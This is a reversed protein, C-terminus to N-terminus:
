VPSRTRCNNLAGFILLAVVYCCVTSLSKHCAEFVTQKLLLTKPKLVIILPLTVTSLQKAMLRNCVTAVTTMHASNQSYGLRVYNGTSCCVWYAVFRVIKYAVFTLLLKSSFGSCTKFNTSNHCISCKPDEGLKQSCKPDEGLKQSCKPDEGLKQSCRPVEGLQSSKQELKQGRKKEQM